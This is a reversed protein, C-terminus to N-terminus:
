LVQNYQDTIFLIAHLKPFLVYNLLFWTKQKFFHFKPTGVSAPNIIIIKGFQTFKSEKNIGIVTYTSIGKTQKTRNIYM